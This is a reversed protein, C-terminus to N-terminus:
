LFRGGNIKGDFLKILKYVSIKQTTSCPCIWSKDQPLNIAAGFIHPTLLHKPLPQAQCKDKSTDLNIM